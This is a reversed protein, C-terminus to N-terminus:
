FEEIWEIQIVTDSDLGKDSFNRVAILDGSEDYLGCSSLDEGVVDESSAALETLFFVLLNNGDYPYEREVIENKAFETPVEELSPSPELVKGEADTGGAGWGVHTIKPISNGDYHSKAFKERAKHTTVVNTAM